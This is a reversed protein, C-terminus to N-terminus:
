PVSVWARSSTVRQAVISATHIILYTYLLACLDAPVTPVYQASSKDDPTARFDMQGFRTNAHRLTLSITLHM